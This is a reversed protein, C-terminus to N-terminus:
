SRLIGPPASETYVTPVTGVNLTFITEMPPHVGTGGCKDCAGTNDPQKYLFRITGDPPLPMEWVWGSGCCSRCFEMPWSEGDPGLYGMVTGSPMAKAVKGVGHCTPCSITM